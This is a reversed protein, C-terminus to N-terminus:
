MDCRGRGFKTANLQSPRRRLFSLIMNALFVLIGAAFVYAGISSVLNLHTVADQPVDAAWGAIGAVILLDSVLKTIVGIFSLWFHLQSLFDSYAYGTVKPFLYYWAAFIGFAATWWLVYHWHVVVYYTDHLVRYAGINAITIRILGGIALVVICGIAWLMPTRFFAPGGRM